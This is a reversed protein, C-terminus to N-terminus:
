HMLIFASLVFLTCSLLGLGLILLTDGIGTSWFWSVKKLDESLFPYIIACLFGILFLIVGFEKM